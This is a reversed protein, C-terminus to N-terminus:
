PRSAVDSGPSRPVKWSLGVGFGMDRRASLSSVLQEGWFIVVVFVTYSSKDPWCQRADLPPCGLLEWQGLLFGLQSIGLAGMTDGLGRQRPGWLGWGMAM